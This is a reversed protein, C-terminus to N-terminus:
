NLSQRLTKEVALIGGSLEKPKNYFHIWHKNKGKRRFCAGHGGSKVRKPLNYIYYKFYLGRKVAEGQYSKGNVTYPGVYKGNKKRWGKAQWLPQTNREVKTPENHTVQILTSPVSPRRAVERRGGDDGVIRVRENVEQTEPMKPSPSEETENESQNAWYILSGYGLLILLVALSKM